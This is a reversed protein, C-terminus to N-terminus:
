LLQVPIQSLYFHLSARNEETLLETDLHM